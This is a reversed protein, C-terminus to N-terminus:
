FRLMELVLLDNSSSSRSLDAMVSKLSLLLWDVCRIALIAVVQAM